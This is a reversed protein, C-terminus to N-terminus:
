IAAGLLDAPIAEGPFQATFCALRLCIACYWGVPTLGSRSSTAGSHRVFMTRPDLHHGNHCRAPVVLTTKVAIGALACTLDFGM